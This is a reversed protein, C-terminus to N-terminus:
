GETKEDIFHPHKLAGESLTYDLFAPHYETILWLPPGEKGTWRPKSVGFVVPFVRSICSAVSPERQAGWEWGTGESLGCLGPRAKM